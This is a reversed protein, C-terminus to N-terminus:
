DAQQVQGTDQTAACWGVGFVVGILVLLFRLVVDEASPPKKSM